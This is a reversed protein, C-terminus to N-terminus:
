RGETAVQRVLRTFVYSGGSSEKGEPVDVVQTLVLRLAPIVAIGQGGHGLAMAAGALAPQARVDAERFVWWLYGYDLGFQGVSWARTSQAVWDAPVVQTGNWTGGDLYLLGLRALDRATLRMTYAPHDSARAFVFRGDAATFDQMGIPRAIRAAFGAFVSERTRREYITGLANFDWNNYYWFAGPPHSGRPPRAATM